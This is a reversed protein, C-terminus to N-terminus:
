VKLHYSRITNKSTSTAVRTLQWPGTNVKNEMDFGAWKGDMSRGTPDLLLQIAGYYEAGKYYGTPSTRERWTGTIVSANIRLDMTVLSHLTNPLSQATIVDGTHRLVLYHESALEQGRGDSYYLYQSHWIGSMDPANRATTSAQAPEATIAPEVAALSLAASLKLLLGRRTMGPDIHSAWVSVVRNLEDADMEELREAFAALRGNSESMSSAPGSHDVPFQDLQQRAKRVPDASGFDACDVLLDAVCCEYLEALRALVDLSPAHGTSAPWLEWYSINKFTKKDAPWRRCWEDAVDGQSWGRALRFAVRMNVRYRDAFIASVEPWTKNEVRLRAALQMQEQRISRM